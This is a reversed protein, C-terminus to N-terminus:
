ADGIDRIQNLQLGVVPHIYHMFIKEPSQEAVLEIDMGGESSAIIAINKSARDVLMALYIEREIETIEELLVANVPLGSAGTQKTVLTKELMTTVVLELQAADKVVAVGGAKGRGGAHVQAKVIWAQDQISKCISQIDDGKRIVHSSLIPISNEKFLAKAQYEHINM